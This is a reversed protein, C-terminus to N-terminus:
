AALASGLTSEVPQMKWWSGAGAAGAVILVALVILFVRLGKRRAKSSKEEAASNETNDTRAPEPTGEPDRDGSGDPGAAVDPGSAQEQQSPEERRPAEEQQAATGSQEMAEELERQRARAARPGEVPKGEGSADGETDQEPVYIFPEYSAYTKHGDDTYEFNLEAVGYENLTKEVDRAM